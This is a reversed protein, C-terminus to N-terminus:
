RFLYRVGLLINSNTFSGKVQDIKAQTTDFYRYSLDLIFDKNLKYGSGVIFQYGLVTDSGDNWLNFSKTSGHSVNINTIGVGIGVYPSFPDKEMHEINHYWDYYVNTMAGISNVSSSINYETGTFTFKSATANRYFLEEELRAGIEFQHGITANLSLGTRDYDLTASDGSRDTLTGFHPLSAGASVGVYNNVQGADAHAAFILLSCAGIILYKLM